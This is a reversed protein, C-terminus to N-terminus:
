KLYSCNHTLPKAQPIAVGDRVQYGTKRSPIPEVLEKERSYPIEDLIGRKSDLSDRV